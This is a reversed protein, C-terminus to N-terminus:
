SRSKMLRDWNELRPVNRSEEFSLIGGGWCFSCRVFAVVERLWFFGDWQFADSGELLLFFSYWHFPSWIVGWVIM